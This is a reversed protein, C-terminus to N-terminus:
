AGDRRIQSEESAVKPRCCLLDACSDMVSRSRKMVPQARKRSCFRTRVLFRGCGTIPSLRGTISIWDGAASRQRVRKKGLDPKRCSCNEHFRRATWLCSACRAARRACRPGICFADERKRRLMDRRSGRHDDDSIFLRPEAAIRLAGLNTPVM